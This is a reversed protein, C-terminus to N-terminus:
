AKLGRVERISDYRTMGNNNWCSFHIRRLENGAKMGWPAVGVLHMFNHVEGRDPKTVHNKANHYGCSGMGM